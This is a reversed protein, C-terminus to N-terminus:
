SRKRLEGNRKRDMPGSKYRKPCPEPQGFRQRKQEIAEKITFRLQHFKKPHIQRLIHRHSSTLRQKRLSLLTSVVSLVVYEESVRSYFRYVRLDRQYSQLRSIDLPISATSGSAGSPSNDLSNQASAGSANRENPMREAVLRGCDIMYEPTRNGIWYFLLGHQCPRNLRRPGSPVAIERQWVAGSSHSRRVFKAILKYHMETTFEVTWCIKSGTQPPNQYCALCRVTVRGQANAM